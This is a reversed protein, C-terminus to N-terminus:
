TANRVGFLRVTGGVINASPSSIRFGSARNLNDLFGSGVAFSCNSSSGKYTGNVNVTKGCTIDNANCVEITFTAGGDSPSVTGAAILFSSGTLTSSTASSIIQSYGSTVVAGSVALQLALTGGTSVKLGQIEIIYKDFLTGFTNLFDVSSAPAAVTVPLVLQYIAGGAGVDGTRDFYLMVAANNLFLNTGTFARPVVTINRYGSMTAVGTIDFLAWQTPDSAKVLRVAGKVASSGAGIASLLSTINVSSSTLDDIRIVTSSNQTSSNFRLRGNGPDTDTTSSDFTYPLAYAGGATFASIAALSENVERGWKPFKQFVGAVLNDFIKQEQTRNPIESEDILTTIPM